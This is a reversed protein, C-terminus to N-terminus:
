CNCAQWNYTNYLRATAMWEYRSYMRLLSLTYQVQLKAGLPKVSWKAEQPKVSWLTIGLSSNYDVEVSSFFNRM